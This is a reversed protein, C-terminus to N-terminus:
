QGPEISAGPESNSPSEPVGDSFTFLTTQDVLALEDELKARAVKVQAVFEKVEELQADLHKIQGVLFEKKAERFRKGREEEGLALNHLPSALYQLVNQLTDILRSIARYLESRVQLLREFEPEGPSGTPLRHLEMPGILQGVRLIAFETFGQLANIDAVVPEVGADEIDPPPLATGDVLEKLLPEVAVLRLEVAALADLAIAFARLVVRNSEATYPKDSNLLGPIAQSVFSTCSRLQAKVPQFGQHAQWAHGTNLYNTDM